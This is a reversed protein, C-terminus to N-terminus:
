NQNEKHYEHSLLLLTLIGEKSKIKESKRKTEENIVDIKFNTDTIYEEAKETLKKLYELIMEEGKNIGPCMKTALSNWTIVRRENVESLGIPFMQCALPRNEYINCAHNESNYFICQTTGQKKKLVPIVDGETTELPHIVLQDLLQKRKEGKMTKEIRLYSISDLFNETSNTARLLPILDQYTLTIYIKSHSCCNGSRQCTFKM